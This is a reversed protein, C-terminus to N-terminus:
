RSLYKPLPPFYVFFSDAFYSSIFVNHIRQQNRLVRKPIAAFKIRCSRTIFLKTSANSFLDNLSHNLFTENEPHLGNLAIEIQAKIITTAALSLIETLMLSINGNPSLITQIKQKATKRARCMRAAIRQYNRRYHQIFSWLVSEREDRHRM